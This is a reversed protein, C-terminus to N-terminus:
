AAQAAGSLLSQMHAHARKVDSVQKLANLTSYYGESGLEHMELMQVIFNVEELRSWLHTFVDKLGEASDPIYPGRGSLKSPDIQQENQVAVIGTAM